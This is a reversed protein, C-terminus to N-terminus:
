KKILSTGNYCYLAYDGNGSHIPYDATYTVATSIFWLDGGDATLAEGVKDSIKKETAAKLDYAYVGIKGGTSSYYLTDGSVELDNATVGAVVTTVKGGNYCKIANASDDYFYLVDGVNVVEFAKEGLDTAKSDGITFSHLKQYGITPNVVFYFTDGLKSLGTVAVNKGDFIVTPEADIAGIDSLSMRMIQNKGLVTNVKLYYVYEGEFILDQCRDSNVKVVEGTELDMCYLAYNTLICTSYFMKNEHFWIGAVDDALVKVHQNTIPNYKYLCAGNLLGDTPNTYYIEGGRIAVVTDGVPVIEEVPPVYGEMLDIEEGSEVDYRYLHKDNLKYYYLYEGDSTLSSYGNDTASIIKTGPLVSGSIITNVKYIGDGFINSTLLDNNIYYIYNGIKTLCKGADTTMKTLEASATNYKYIASGGIIKSSNFYLMNGDAIIYEVKEDQILVSTGGSLPMVYLKGGDSKNSYYLKDGVVTLYAAKNTCIRIPAEDSGDLTYRYIGQDDGFLSNVAYYVYTGDTTLYEGNVSNLVLSVKGDSGIKKLSKSLFASSYYYLSDGDTFFYEPVDNNVKLIEGDEVKYLKKGDLDNQFYIVGNFNVVNLLAETSKITLTASLTLTNHNQSTLTAVIDYKGVQSASTFIEDGCTYTVIVGAPVNGVVAISHENTDYEVSKGSFTIGTIDAKNIVLTATLTKTNYNACELVATVPYTGANTAKNSTYTVTTGAPLNGEVEVKHESGDYTVTLDSLTIGTIDAKNILITATLTKTNYGACELKASATYTGANTAKNGTYNVIAGEPLTGEIEVSHENGDYTVTLDPLTIGEFNLLDPDPTPDPTPAPSPDPTPTPEDKAGCGALAFILVFILAFVLIKKM